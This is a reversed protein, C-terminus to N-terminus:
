MRVPELFRDPQITEAPTQLPVELDIEAAAELPGRSPEPLSEVKVLYACVPVSPLGPHPRLMRRVEEESKHFVGGRGPIEIPDMVTLEAGDEQPEIAAVFHLSPDVDPDAILVHPHALIIGKHDDWTIAQRLTDLRYELAEDSPDLALNNGQGPGPPSLLDEFRVPLGATIMAQDYALDSDLITGYEPLYLKAAALASNVREQAVGTLAEVNAGFYGNPERNGVFELSRPSGM